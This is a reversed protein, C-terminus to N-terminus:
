IIGAAMDEERSESGEDLQYQLASGWYGNPREEKAGIESSQELFLAPNPGDCHAASQAAKNGLDSPALDHLLHPVEQGRLLQSKTYLPSSLSSHMGEPQVKTFGVMPLSDKFQIEFIGKVGDASVLHQISDPLVNGLEVRKDM